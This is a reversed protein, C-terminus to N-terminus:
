FLIAGELELLKQKRWIGGGYGTLNGDSGIVRHCPVLISIKNMGNANAVARVKKSDGLIESQKAYSWTEGYPIKMLIEWVSKQFDSGVFQLPVTFEKRKGEFYETLQEDLIKFHSNEGQIINANLSKSLHKLETELMKRDTFELMCIGEDTAAAYMTGLPTEIRK